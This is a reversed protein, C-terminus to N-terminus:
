AARRHAHDALTRGLWGHRALADVLRLYHETHRATATPDPALDQRTRAMTRAAEALPQGHATAALVASGHAAETHQPLRVPRGLVDARLRCWAPNRAGGGTLTYPGDAPAGLLDLHDLCLRELCAVGLLQALFLDTDDATDGLVFPRADPARFPFREGAASVLPYAVARPRRRVAHATLRDLDAGPFRHALVGAGSSSAGGPLWLGDPGRHCYLAGTPDHVLGHSVGKLVLTTGLVANWAGPELAGAGLRAACGDTMGAVVPTGEPIGTTVAARACVTGTVTGPRVVDPLVAAPVGLATLTDEPWRDALLHYGSKLAHSTDTPLPHGALRRCILDPQHCLRADDHAVADRHRDLLWLLKPLAWSPQMRQYGLEQWLPAGLANARDAEATARGDDYMLGPTLPRGRRDTLLVTGSTGDVALARIRTTDLGTLAARCAHATATWWQEPDQEHRNGARHGTLPHTGSGHVHGTSDVAVARASQTGVDIGLWLDRDPM